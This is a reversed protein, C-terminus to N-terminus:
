SQRSRTKYRRADCHSRPVFARKKLFNCKLPNLKMNVKRLRSFVDILNKNHQNLNRGIVIIDDLYVICKEYNLGSLAITMARSFSSPSTKLGMPLRKMQYHKDAVFATYQRSEADLKMQYYGQNLDLHSFYMAGSLSDLIETINPLPFKDDQVCENLKRYDLVIRWKREGNTDVKKPVILLPSSWESTSEEIIDNDIMELIQKRIEAKQSHPLRYPKSYVPSANEKLHIKQEYLNCTCTNLRDGPLHFIDAFKACISAINRQEDTNLNELRLLDFLKRVREGDNTVKNFAYCYFDDFPLIGPTFCHLVVETERTNIIRVSIKGSGSENLSNAVFVGGCM